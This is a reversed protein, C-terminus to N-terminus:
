QDLEMLKIIEKIKEVTMNKPIRICRVLTILEDWANNLDREELYYQESPYVIGPSVYKVGDIEWTEKDFRNFSDLTIWKRGVGSIFQNEIRKTNRYVVFVEMGVEPKPYHSKM